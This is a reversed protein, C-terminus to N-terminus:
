PDDEGAEIPKYLQKALETHETRSQAAAIEKAFAERVHKEAGALTEGTPVPLRPPVANTVADGDALPDFASDSAAASVVHAVAPQTAPERVPSTAAVAPEASSPAVASFKPRERAPPTTETALDASPTTRSDSAGRSAVDPSAAVPSEIRDAARPAADATAIPAAAVSLEASPTRAAVEPGGQSGSGAIGWAALLGILVGTAAGAIWTTPPSKAHSAPRAQTSRAGSSGAAFPASLGVDFEARTTPTTLGPPAPIYVTPIAQLPAFPDHSALGFPDMTGAAVPATAAARTRLEADYAAKKDANLLVRRAVALENLLRQSADSHPGTKHMQVFTMQRDAAQDIVSQNSEYLTLGLLRYHHPPQEAAPIGLWQHYPDFAATM